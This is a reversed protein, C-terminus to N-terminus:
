NFRDRESMALSHLKDTHAYKQKLADIVDEATMTSVNFETPSIAGGAILANAILESCIWKDRDKPIIIETSEDEVFLTECTFCKLCLFCNYTQDDYKSKLQRKLFAEADRERECKLEFCYWLGPDITHDKQISRKVGSAAPNKRSRVATYYVWHITGEKHEGKLGSYECKHGTCERRFGLEVHTIDQGTCFWVSLNSVNTKEDIQRGCVRIMTSQDDM